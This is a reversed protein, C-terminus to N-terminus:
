NNQINSRTKTAKAATTAAACLGDAQSLTVDTWGDSATVRAGEIKKIDWSPRVRSLEPTAAGWEKVITISGHQRKGTPLGSAADRPSVVERQFSASRLTGDSCELRLVRDDPVGDGDLDGTSVQLYIPGAAAPRSVGKITLYYDASSAAVGTSCAVVGFAVLAMRSMNTGREFTM